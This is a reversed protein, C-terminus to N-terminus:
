SLGRAAEARRAALPRLARERAEGVMRELDAFGPKAVIEPSERRVFAIFSDFRAWMTALLEVTEDHLSEFKGAPREGMPFEEGDRECYGRCGRCMLWTEGEPLVVAGVLPTACYPCPPPLEDDDPRITM